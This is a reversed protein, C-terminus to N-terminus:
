LVQRVISQFMEFTKRFRLIIKQINLINKFHMSRLRRVTFTDELGNEFDRKQSVTQAQNATM